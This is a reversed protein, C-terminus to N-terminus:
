SLKQHQLHQNISRAIFRGLEVPVANGIQKSITGVPIPSDAPVFQYDTPFTQFIAAERLSIARNQEPHGFRGNGLGVCQTTMTPAPEDWKMRGYVSSKYGKGTTKKHCDLVLSDDWASSNGGDRPTAAIRKLNLESLKSARHLPDFQDAEGDKIPKLHSISERVTKIKVDRPEVLNIPGHKSALLVLRKRKQPIGYEECNVVQYSYHYGSQELTTLFEQFVPYREINALDKVNEMSIIDPQLERIYEIFKRLPKWKEEIETQSYKTRRNNITSFPQCPACGILIKVAANRDYLNSIESSTVETIDKGIFKTRNNYEYPYQCSLDNDVGGKVKFGELIFGHTLGGVGCFLDVVEAKKLLKNKRIAM